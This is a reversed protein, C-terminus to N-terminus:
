KMAEDFKRLGDRSRRYPQKNDLILRHKSNNVQNLQQRNTQKLQYIKFSDDLNRMEQVLLIEGRYVEGRDVVYMEIEGVDVDTQIFTKSNEKSDPTTAQLRTNASIMLVLMLLFSLAKM